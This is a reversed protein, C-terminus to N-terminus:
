FTLGGWVHLTIVEREDPPLTQLAGTVADADLAADDALQFWAPQCQAARTEHRRQREAERRASIAANRVVRYLWPLPQVPPTRQGLLKLVADQVVGEPAACWQRAYLTLAAAHQGILRGVDEPRMM